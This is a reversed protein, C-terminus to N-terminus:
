CRAPCGGKALTASITGFGQGFCENHTIIRSNSPPKPCGGGCSDQDTAATAAAAWLVLPVALGISRISKM